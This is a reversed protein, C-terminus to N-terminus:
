CIEPIRVTQSPSVMRLLAQVQRWLSGFLSSASETIDDKKGRQRGKEAEQASKGTLFRHIRRLNSMAASALVVM